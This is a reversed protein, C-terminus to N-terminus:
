WGWAKALDQLKAFVYDAFLEGGLTNPHLGDATIPGNTLYGFGGESGIDICPLGLYNAVDRVAQQFDVFKDGDANATTISWNPIRSDSSYPTLFVIKANPAQAQIAVVAAYLAGYFTATNTDGLSGLTSTRTGFDNTGAAITVLDADIAINPIENYIALSGYHAGEAISGGSVGLNQGTAGLLTELPPFYKNQDTISTGLAAWKKGAFPSLAEKNRLKAFEETLLDQAVTVSYVTSGLKTFGADSIDDTPWIDVGNHLARYSEVIIGSAGDGAYPPASGDLSAMLQGNASNAVTGVASARIEYRGGGLYTITGTGWVENHIVGKELDFYVDMRANVNVYLRCFKRGAAKVIAVLEYTDGIVLGGMNRYVDAYISGSGEVLKNATFTYGAARELKPLEILRSASPYRAVETQTSSSDRRYRIIENGSVVQFQGGDAVAALGTAVDVYVDANVFAANSAAEAGAQAVEAAGKAAVAGAEADEADSALTQLEAAGGLADSYTKADLAHEKASKTGSGGPETGE